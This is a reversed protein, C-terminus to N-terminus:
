HLSIGAARRAEEAFIRRVVEIDKPCDFRLALEAVVGSWYEFGESDEAFRARSAARHAEYYATSPSRAALERARQRVAARSSGDWRLYDSM